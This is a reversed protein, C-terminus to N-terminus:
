FNLSNYGLAWDGAWFSLKALVPLFVRLFLFQIKGATHQKVHFSSNTEFIKDPIATFKKTIQFFVSIEIEFVFLFCFFLLM